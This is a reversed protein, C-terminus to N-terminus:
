MALYQPPRVKNKVSTADISLVRTSAIDVRFARAVVYFLWAVVCFQSHPMAWDLVAFQVLDFKVPTRVALIAM